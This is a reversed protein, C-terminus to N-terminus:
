QVLMLLQILDVGLNCDIHNEDYILQLYLFHDYVLFWESGVQLFLPEPEVLDHLIM